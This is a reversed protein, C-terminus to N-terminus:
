QVCSSDCTPSASGHSQLGHVVATQRLIGWHQLASGDAGCGTQLAAQTASRAVTHWSTSPPPPGSQGSPRTHGRSTVPGAGAGWFYRMPGPPATSRTSPTLPPAVDAVTVPQAHSGSHGPVATGTAM